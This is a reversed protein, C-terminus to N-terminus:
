RPEKRLPRYDGDDSGTTKIALAGASKSQM